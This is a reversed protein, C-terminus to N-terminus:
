RVELIRKAPKTLVIKYGTGDTVSVAKGGKTTTPNEQKASQETTAAQSGCASLFLLVLIVVPQKLLGMFEQGEGCTNQNGSVHLVANNYNSLKLM